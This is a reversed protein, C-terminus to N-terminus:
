ATDGDKDVDEMGRRQRYVREAERARALDVDIKPTMEKLDSTNAFPAVYDLNMPKEVAHLLQYSKILQSSWERVEKARHKSFVKVARSLMKEPIREVGFSLESVSLYEAFKEDQLRERMNVEVEETKDFQEVAQRRMVQTAGTEPTSRAFIDPKEQM